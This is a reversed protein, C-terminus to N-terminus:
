FSANYRPISARTLRDNTMKNNNEPAFGHRVSHNVKVGGGRKGRRACPSSRASERSYTSRSSSTRSRNAPTPRPLCRTQRSTFSRHKPAPSALPPSSPQPVRSHNVLAPHTFRQTITLRDPQLKEISVHQCQQRNVQVEDHNILHEGPTAKRSIIYESRMM